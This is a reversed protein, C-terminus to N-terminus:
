ELSGEARVVSKVIKEFAVVLCEGSSFQLSEVGEQRNTAGGAMCTREESAVVVLLESDEVGVFVSRVFPADLYGLFVVVFKDELHGAQAIDSQSRRVEM